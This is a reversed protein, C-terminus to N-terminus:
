GCRVSQADKRKIWPICVWGKTKIFKNDKDYLPDKKMLQIKDETEEMTFLECISTQKM